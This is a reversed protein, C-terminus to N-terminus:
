VRFGGQHHGVRIHCVQRRAQACPVGRWVGAGSAPMPPTLHARSACLGTPPVGMGCAAATNYHCHGHCCGQQRGAQWGGVGGEKGGVGGAGAATRTLHGGVWGGAGAAAHPLHSGVWGGAWGGVQELRPAHCTAELAYAADFSAEPFPLELFNGRVARCQGTLGNQARSVPSPRRSKVGVFGDGAGLNLDRQVRRPPAPASSPHQRHKGADGRGEIGHTHTSRSRGAPALGGRGM